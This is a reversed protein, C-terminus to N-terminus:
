NGRRISSVGTTSSTLEPNGWYTVSGVGTSSANLKQEAHVQVTGAGSLKVTADQAILNRAHIEGAGSVDINLKNATGSLSISAAGSLDVSVSQASLALDVSGAGSIDLAFSQAVFTGNGRIAAAGSVVVAELADASIDFVIKDSSISRNNKTSIKLVGNKHTIELLNKLNDDISYTIESSKKPTINLTAAMNSIDIKTISGSYSFSGSTMRGNGRTVGVASCGSLVGLLLVLVVLLALARSGRRKNM